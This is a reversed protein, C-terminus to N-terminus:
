QNNAILIAINQDIRVISEKVTRIEVTNTIVRANLVQSQFLMGALFGILPLFVCLMTTIVWRYRKERTEVTKINEMERKEPDWEM